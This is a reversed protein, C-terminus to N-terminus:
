FYVINQCDNNNIKSLDIDAFISQNSASDNMNSFSSNTELEKKMDIIMKQNEITEFHNRIKIEEMKTAWDILRTKAYKYFLPDIEEDDKLVDVPVYHSEGLHGLYITKIEPKIEVSDYANIKHEYSGTNSIVIIELKYMYSILLMILQTPLRSWSHMNSLDQCMVNYTYKYFEKQVEGNEKRRCLVHEIENTMGFMEEFTMDTNPLFGKYNKYIYMILSLVTRLKEVSECIGHYVLSEFMCNGDLSTLMPVYLQKKKLCQDYLGVMMENMHREARYDELLFREDYSLPRGLYAMWVKLNIKRPFILHPPYSLQQDGQHTDMKLTLRHSQYIDKLLLKMKKLKLKKHIQFFQFM